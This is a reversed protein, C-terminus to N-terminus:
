EKDILGEKEMKRYLDKFEIRIRALKGSHIEAIRSVLYVTRILRITRVNEKDGGVKKEVWDDEDEVDYLEFLPIIDRLFQIQQSCDWYELFNNIDSEIDRKKNM